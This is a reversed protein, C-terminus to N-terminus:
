DAGGYQGVYTNTPTTFSLTGALEGGTPGFFRGELFSSDVTIDSSSLTTEFGSGALSAPDITLNVGSLSGESVGINGGTMANSAFDVNASFTGRGLDSPDAGDYLIARGAYSANASPLNRPATQNGFTYFGVDDVFAGSYTILTAFLVDTLEPGDIMNVGFIINQDGAASRAANATDSPLTFTDNDLDLTVFDYADAGTGGEASPTFTFTADTQSLAVAPSTSSNTATVGKGTYVTGALNTGGFGFESTQAAAAGPRCYPPRRWVLFHVNNM